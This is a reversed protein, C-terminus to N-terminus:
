PFPRRFLHMKLRSQFVPLSSTSTVHFPLDNWTRAAAVPFAATYPLCTYSMRVFKTRRNELLKSQLEQLKCLSRKDVKSLSSTQTERVGLWCSYHQLHLTSPAQVPIICLTPQLITEMHQIKFSKIYWFLLVIPLGLCATPRCYFM